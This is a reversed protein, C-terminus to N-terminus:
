RPLEQASSSRIDVILNHQEGQDESGSINVDDELPFDFLNEDGDNNILNSDFEAAEDQFGNVNSELSPQGDEGKAQSPQFPKSDFPHFTPTPCESPPADSELIQTTVRTLSSNRVFNDDITVDFSEELVHTHRNLDRYAKSKAFYRLFIAEDAKPQFMTLQDRNNKIFCRCGFVHLFYISPKRGNMAEYPTM